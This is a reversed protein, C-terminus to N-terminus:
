QTCDGEPVRLGADREGLAERQNENREKGRGHSRGAMQRM